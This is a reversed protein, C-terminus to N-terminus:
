REKNMLGFSTIIFHAPGDRGLRSEVLNFCTVEFRGFEKDKYKELFTQMGKGTKRKVRAITIHASFTDLKGYGNLASIVQTALEELKGNSEIGAWVVKVYDQNPFVGVGNVKCLFRSFKIEGLLKEIEVVQHEQMEGIFKLTAHMNVPKVPTITEGSIEKGVRVLGKKMNEPIPVEVFLRM